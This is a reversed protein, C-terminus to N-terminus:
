SLAYEFSEIIQIVSTFEHLSLGCKIQFLERTCECPFTDSSPCFCNIANSSSTKSNSIQSRGLHTQVFCVLYCVTAICLDFPVFLSMLISSIHSNSLFHSSLFFAHHFCFSARLHSDLLNTSPSDYVPSLDGEDRTITNM